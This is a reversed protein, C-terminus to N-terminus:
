QGRGKRISASKLFLLIHGNQTGIRFVEITPPVVAYWCPISFKPVAIIKSYGVMDNECAVVTKELM